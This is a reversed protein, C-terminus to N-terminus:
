QRHNKLKSLHVKVIYSMLWPSFLHSTYLFKRYLSHFKETFRVNNWHLIKATCFFSHSVLLIQLITALDRAKKEEAGAEQFLGLAVTGLMASCYCREWKGQTRSLNGKSTGFHYKQTLLLLIWYPKIQFVGRLRREALDSRYGILCNSILYFPRVKGVCSIFEPGWFLLTDKNTNCWM